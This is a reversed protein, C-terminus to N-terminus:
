SAAFLVRFSGSDQELCPSRNLLIKIKEGERKGKSKRVNEQQSLNSKAQATTTTDRKTERDRLCSWFITLLAVGNIFPIERIQFEIRSGVLSLEETTELERIVTGEEEVKKREKSRVGERGECSLVNDVWRMESREEKGEM